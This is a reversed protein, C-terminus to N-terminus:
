LDGRESYLRKMGLNRDMAGSTAGVLAGTDMVIQMNTMRETMYDMDERLAQIEAVVAANSGNLNTMDYAIQGTMGALSVNQNRFMSNISNAGAGIMSTDLIPRISPDYQIEGSAIKSVYDLPDGFSNIMQDSLNFMADSATGVNENIGNAVGLICWLGAQYFKKSPSGAWIGDRSMYAEFQMRATKHMATELLEKTKQDDLAKQIGAPIASGYYEAEDVLAARDAVLRNHTPEIVGTQVAKRSKEQNETSSMTDHMADANDQTASKVENLSDPNSMESAFSSNYMVGSDEAGEVGDTSMYDQFGMDYMEANDSGSKFYDPGLEAMTGSTMFNNFQDGAAGGLNMSKTIDFNGLAGKRDAVLSAIDGGGLIDSIGNGGTISEKAKKVQDAISTSGKDETTWHSGGGSHGTGEDSILDAQKELEKNYGSLSAKAEDAAEADALMKKAHADLEQQGYDLFGGLFEAIKGGFMNGFIINVVEKLVALVVDILSYILNFIAAVIRNSHSRIAEALGNVLSILFELLGSVLTGVISGLYKLLKILITGITKLVEPSAKILAGCLATIVGVLAAKGKTSLKSVFKSGASAISKIVDLIVGAGKAVIEAISKIIPGVTAGLAVIAVTLAVVIVTIIILVPFHGELTRFLMEADIILAPIAPLLTMIANVTLWIGAGVLAAGIGMYMFAHGVTMIGDGLKPFKAVLAGLAVMVVLFVGFAIAAPILDEASGSLLSIAYAMLVMAGAIMIFAAGVAFLTDGSNFSKSGIAMLLGLVVGILVIVGAMAILSEEVNNLDDMVKFAAALILAALAFAIIGAVAALMTGKIDGLSNAADRTDSAMASLNKLKSLIFIVVAIVGVAILLGSSAFSIVSLKQIAYALEGIGFGIAAVLVAMALIQKPDVADVYKLMAVIGLMLVGLVIAFGIFKEFDVGNVIKLAIALVLVAGSLAAMLVAMSLLTGVVGAGNGEKVIKAALLSLGTILLFIASLVGVFLVLPTIVTFIDTTGIATAAIIIAIAGSIALMMGSIAFGVAVVLAAVAFISAANYKAIIASLAIIAGIFIFMMAVMGVAFTFASEKVTSMVKVAVAIELMAFGIAAILLAISLIAGIGKQNGKSDTPLAGIIKTIAFVMVGIAAMISILILYSDPNVEAKQILALSGSLLAVGIAIAAILVAISYIAKVSNTLNKVVGGLSSGEDAQSIKDVLKALGALVIAIIVLVGAAAYLQDKDINALVVLVGAILAISKAITFFSYATAMKKVAAAGASLVSAMNDFVKKISAPIKTVTEILNGLSKITFITKALTSVVWAVVAIKGAEKWNIKSIIDIIFNFLGSIKDSWDVSTFSSKLTEWVSTGFDKASEWASGDKIKEFIEEISGLFPIKFEKISALIGNIKDKAKLVVSPLTQFLGFIRTGVGAKSMADQAAQPLNAIEKRTKVFNQILGFIKKGLNIVWDIGKKITTFFSTFKATIKEVTKESVILKETLRSFKIAFGAVGQAADYSDGKISFVNKFATFIGGVIKSISKGINKLGTWLGAFASHIQNIVAHFKIRRYEKARQKAEEVQAAMGDAAEESSEKVKIEAKEYSWGAAKVSEVYDLIHKASEAGFADELKKKQADGYGYLGQIVKKAEEAEKKTVELTKEAEKGSKNADKHYDSIVWKFEEFFGKAKVAAFDMKEAVKTFWSLDIKHIFDSMANVGTEWAEAFHGAFRMVKNGNEDTTDNLAKQFEKIRDTLAVFFVNTKDIIPQAFIAGIRSLAAKMNSLAGTFTKNAEKAHEGYAQDMAESFMQFDVKGKSVMDRIESETTNLSKALTAAVNLGRGALQNLQDGMVRGQGAVATFIRSIDEYSSNTMAAVGSIARLSKHMQTVDKGAGDKGIVKEFDVGSAALQSAAKAAADLGYATDTVAYDAAEKVKDWSFKLGEIQFQANAINSARSWGGSKIQGITAQELRKAAGIVSDTIKNVVNMGAIGMASFRYEIMEIGRAMASLDISDLVRQLGSVSSGADKFQLKEKLKDLTSMSKSVGAEFQANDFGLHVVRNDISM